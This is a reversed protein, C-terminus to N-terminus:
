RQNLRFKWAEFPLVTEQDFPLLQSFQVNDLTQPLM